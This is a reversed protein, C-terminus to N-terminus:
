FHHLLDQYGDSTLMIHSIHYKQWLNLHFKLRARHRLATFLILIFRFTNKKM